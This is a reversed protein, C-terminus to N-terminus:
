TKLLGELTPPQGRNIHNSIGNVTSPLRRSASVSEFETMSAFQERTPFPQHYPTETEDQLQSRLVKIYETGRRFVQMGTSLTCGQRDALRRVKAGDVIGYEDINTMPLYKIKFKLGNEEIVSNDAPIV